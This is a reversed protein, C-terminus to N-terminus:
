ERSKIRLRLPRWELAMAKEAASARFDGIELGARIQQSRSEAGEKRFHQPFAAKRM